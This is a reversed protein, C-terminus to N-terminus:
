GSNIELTSGRAESISFHKSEYQVKVKSFQGFETAPLELEATGPKKCPKKVAATNRSGGGGEAVVTEVSKALTRRNLHTTREMYQPPEVERSLLLRM